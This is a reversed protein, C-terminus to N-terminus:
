EGLKVKQEDTKRSQKTEVWDTEKDTLGSSTSTKKKPSIYLSLYEQKPRKRWNCLVFVKDFMNKQCPIRRLDVWLVKNETEQKQETIFAVSIQNPKSEKNLSM